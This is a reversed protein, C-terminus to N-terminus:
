EAQLRNWFSTKRSHTKLLTEVFAAHDPHGKLDGIAAAAAACDMLHRAAHAYRSTRGHGLTDLIMARRALTAALPHDAALAEAAPSLVWYADGDLDAYSAEILRAAEPLDPWDVFFHLAALRDPHARALTKARDETEIDDFDPLAKLHRRLSDANLTQCFDQWLFAQVEAARGLATLCDLYVQDLDSLGSWPAGGQGNARAAEVIDLAESARGAALLRRAVDPAITHYTLQEASYRAMYADVDRQLDAIDQLIMGATRNRGELALATRRAPDAVFDYRAIDTKTLPATTAVTALAKLHELGESGLAEALAPVAGDFAGYGNDQLAEFVTEALRAPDAQLGPALDAIAAMAESMVDGIVGSSDDTRAHIGGSLHLFTWLLDFAEGPAEPAVRTSILAVLGSLEKAFAGKQRWSIFGTARRLEAFRKRIDRAVEGSGARASLELRLRRQLAANGRTVEILLGALAEAGLATLNAKNLAKKVMPIGGNLEEGKIGPLM